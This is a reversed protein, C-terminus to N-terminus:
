IQRARLLRDIEAAILAGARELNRIPDDSPKWWDHTWPWSASIEVTLGIVQKEAAEAYCCAAASLEGLWHGNDHDEDWGEQEVQRKREAIIRQLGDKM